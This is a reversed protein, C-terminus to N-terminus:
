YHILVNQQEWQEKLNLLFQAMSTVPAMIQFLYFVIAVLEGTSLSGMAVKYGGYGFICVLVMLITTTILPLVMAMIKGSKLGYRYLRRARKGGQAAEENEAVSLKVLRIDSLVRGLDGQFSATENQM